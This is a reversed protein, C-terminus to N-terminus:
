VSVNEMGNKNKEIITKLNLVLTEFEPTDQCKLKSFKIEQSKNLIEYFNEYYIKLSSDNEIIELLENESLFFSQINHCYYLYEKVIYSMQFYKDKLSLLNNNKLLNLKKLIDHETINITNQAKKRKKLLYRILMFAAFILVILLVLILAYLFYNPEKDFEALPKIDAMKSLIESNIDSTKM